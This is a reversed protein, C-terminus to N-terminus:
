VIGVTNTSLDEPSSCQRGCCCLALGALKGAAAAPCGSAPVSQVSCACDQVLVVTASEVTMIDMSYQISVVVM